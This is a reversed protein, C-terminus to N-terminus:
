EYLVIEAPSSPFYATYTNISGSGTVTVTNGVMSAPISLNSSGSVRLNSNPAYAIGGWSGNSGSINLGTNNSTVNAFFTMQESYPVFNMTPSSINISGTAVLTVASPVTTSLGQAFNIDGNVYYVGPALVGSTVYSSLNTSSSIYHYTPTSSTGQYFDALTKNVPDPLVTSQVPNNTSPNMTAKGQLGTPNAGTVDQVSGNITNGSGSMDVDSNSHVAGTVTWGTGSWDIVKSGPPLNAAIAFISYGGSGAAPKARAAALASVHLSNIGLVPLFLTPAQQVTIVEIGIANPPPAGSTSTLAGVRAENADTYYATVNQAPNDVLNLSAYRDIQARIDASSSDGTGMIRAGALAAADAAVQMGRRRLYLSGGDVGIGVMAVLVVLFVSVLVLAQGGSRPRTARARPGGPRPAPM